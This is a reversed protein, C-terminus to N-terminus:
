KDLEEAAFANQKERAMSKKIRFYSSIIVILALVIFAASIPRTFFISADGHSIILSRRLNQEAMPGLILALLIPSVPYDYYEMFYAIVGVILSLGVDFFSFRMAYSGVVCLFFIVPTLIKRDVTILKAFLRAGSLGVILLAFQAMIMGAFIPYIVDLHDRFLMPGPQLGHITLAGLLVATVADGPVGLTLMPIM